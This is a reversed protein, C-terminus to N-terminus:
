EWGRFGSPSGPREGNCCQNFCASVASVSKNRSFDTKCSQLIMSCFFCSCCCHETSDKSLYLSLMFGLGSTSSFHMATFSKTRLDANSPCVKSLPPAATNCEHLVFCLRKCIWLPLSHTNSCAAAPLTRPINNCKQQIKCQKHFFFFFSFSLLLSSSSLLLLFIFFREIVPKAIM